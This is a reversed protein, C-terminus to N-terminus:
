PRHPLFFEWLTQAVIGAPSLFSEWTKHDCWWSQPWPPPPMLSPNLGGFKIKWYYKCSCQMRIGSIDLEECELGFMRFHTIILLYVVLVKTWLAILTKSHSRSNLANLSLLLCSFFFNIVKGIWYYKGKFGICTILLCTKLFLNTVHNSPSNGPMAFTLLLYAPLYVMYMTSERSQSTNVTTKVTYQFVMVNLSSLCFILIFAVFNRM